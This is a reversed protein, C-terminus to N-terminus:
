TGQEVIKDSVGSVAEGSREQSVLAMRLAQLFVGNIENDARWYYKYILISM